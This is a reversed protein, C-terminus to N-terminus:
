IDSVMVDVEHGARSLPVPKQFVRYRGDGAPLHPLKQYMECIQDAIAREWRGRPQFILHIEQRGDFISWRWDGLHPEGAQTSAGQTEYVRKKYSCNSLLM